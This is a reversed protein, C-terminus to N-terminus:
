KTAQITVRDARTNARSARGYMLEAIAPPAFYDGPHIAQAYYYIEHEGPPLSEAYIKVTDQATQRSGFYYSGDGGVNNLQAGGVSSLTIDRTVFGGPVIDTLAVFYKAAPAHVQLRVRIWDGESISTKEVPVWTGARLVDYHRQLSLGVGKAEAERMDFQYQVTATYNLTGQKQDESSLRLHKGNGNIAAQISAQGQQPNLNLLQTIIFLCKPTENSVSLM